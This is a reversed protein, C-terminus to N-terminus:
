DFLNLARNMWSKFVAVGGGGNFLEELSNWVQVCAAVFSRGFQATFFTRLNNLPIELKRIEYWVTNKIKFLM